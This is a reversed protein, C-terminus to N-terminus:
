SLASHCAHPVHYQYIPTDTAHMHSAQMRSSVQTSSSQSQKELREQVELLQTELAKVRASLKDREAQLGGFLM